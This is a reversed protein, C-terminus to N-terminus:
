EGRKTIDFDKGWESIDAQEWSGWKLLLSNAVYMSLLIELHDRVHDISANKKRIKKFRSIKSVGPFVSNKSLFPSCGYWSVTFGPGEPLVRTGPM